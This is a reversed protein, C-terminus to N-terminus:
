PARTQAPQQTSTKVGASIMSKLENFGTEFSEGIKDIQMELYNIREEVQPDMSGNENGHYNGSKENGEVNAEVGHTEGESAAQAPTEERKGDENGNGNSDTTATEVTTMAPREEIERTKKLANHLPISGREKDFLNNTILITMVETVTRASRNVEQAMKQREKMTPMRDMYMVEFAITRREKGRAGPFLLRIRDALAVGLDPMPPISM